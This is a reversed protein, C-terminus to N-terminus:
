TVNVCMHMCSRYSFINTICISWIMWLKVHETAEDCSGMVNMHNGVHMLQGRVVHLPGQGEVLIHTHPLTVQTCCEILSTYHHMAVWQFAIDRIYVCLKCLRILSLWTPSHYCCDRLKSANVETDFVHRKNRYEPHKHHHHSTSRSLLTLMISDRICM